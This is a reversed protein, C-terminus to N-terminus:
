SIPTVGHYIRNFISLKDFYFAQRAQAAVIADKAIHLAELGHDAVESMQKPTLVIGTSQTALSTAASGALDCQGRVLWPLASQGISM